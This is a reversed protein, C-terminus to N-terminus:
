KFLRFKVVYRKFIQWVHRWLFYVEVRLINLFKRVNFKKRKVLVKYFQDRICIAHSFIHGHSFYNFYPSSLLCSIFLIYLTIM